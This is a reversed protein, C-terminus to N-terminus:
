PRDAAAAPPPRRPIPRPPCRRDCAWLQVPYRGRLQPRPRGLKRAWAGLRRGCYACDAGGLQRGTLHTLAPIREDQPAAAPPAMVASM